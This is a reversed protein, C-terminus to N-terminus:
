ICLSSKVQRNVINEKQVDWRLYNVQHTGPKVMGFAKEQGTNKIYVNYNKSKQNDTQEHSPWWHFHCKAVLDDHQHHFPLCLMTIRCIIKSAIHIEIWKLIYSYDVVVNRSLISQHLVLWNNLLVSLWNLYTTITLKTGKFPQIILNTTQKNAVMNCKYLNYWQKVPSYLPFSAVWELAFNLRHLTM